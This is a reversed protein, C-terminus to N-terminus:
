RQKGIGLSAVMKRCAACTVNAVDNTTHSVSVAKRGCAIWRLTQPGFRPHVTESIAVYHVRRM